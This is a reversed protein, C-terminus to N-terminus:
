PTIEFVSGHHTDGGGNTTGYLNGAADFIVGAYPFIGPDDVFYHLVIEKWVGNSNPALKFVVGCGGGGCDPLRGGISTTGNLNGKSDFVVGGVPFAGRRGNFSHVVTEKWKGTSEQALKFVTGDEYVGGVSTTGYLNGATDMILTGRGPYGGDAGGTFSHLVSITWVGRSPTLKFVVGVADAGGGQTTGYLNGKGDFILGAYPDGGSDGGTFNYLVDETWAGRSHPTLKFVTGRQYVGGQVTTGYLNGSSDFILASYPTSGDRGSFSYLVSERWSGDRNPTLKFLTGLDSAGGSSTTGYLSGTQDFVLDAFPFVGDACGNLSCFDYLVTETWRGDINPTLRFVVGCGAPCTSSGGGSSTTGYLNGTADLTLGSPLTSGDAGGTFVQLTKYNGAADARPGWVLTAMTIVLLPGRLTKLTKNRSM